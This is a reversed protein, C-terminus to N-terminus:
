RRGARPALPPGGCRAASGALSGTPQPMENRQSVAGPPRRRANSAALAAAGIERRSLFRDM